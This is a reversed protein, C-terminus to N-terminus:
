LEVLLESFLVEADVEIGRREFWGCLNNVDRHLFNLGQPNAAVDVAQPFDIFWLEGNWWLLNFASLDGHAFGAHVMRHLGDVLQEFASQVDDDDLRARGLQPAAGRRDGVYEMIFEDDGFSVPYPVRVGADWLVRMVDSEHNTWRAQLLQKGHASMREVARRDRSKRFQRGERYAVDHRFTSARQVGMAELQGKSAVSRPLYRKKALLLTRGDHGRREIINIQAEKGTRLVGLDEDTFPESM